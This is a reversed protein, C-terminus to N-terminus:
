LPSKRATGPLRPLDRPTPRVKPVVVLSRGLDSGPLQFVHIEASGGGLRRTAPKAEEVEDAIDPGKMAVFVGGVRAFPLTWELLVNLRAVARATVVDFTERLGQASCTGPRPAYAAADEARAHLTQLGTLNLDEAVRQLFNLRKQVADLLTVQLHPYLIKLVMGPFGAGTGVDILSRQRTFDVAQACSLSDLFHKTLVESPAEIATLNFRQNWELLMALYRDLAAIQDPHLEVGFSQAGHIVPTWDAPPTPPKVKAM